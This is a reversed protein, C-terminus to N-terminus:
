KTEYSIASKDEILRGWYFNYPHVQTTESNIDVLPMEDNRWHFIGGQLNYSQDVQQQPSLSNVRSAFKSSRRGVSCHYIVTKGKIAEGYKNIFVQPDLDPDIQIAGDLHSVEHEKKGRVDFIVVQETNLKSVDDSSIHNVNDYDSIIKQHIDALKASLPEASVITSSLLICLIALKLIM